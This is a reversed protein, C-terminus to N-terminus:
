RRRDHVMVWMDIQQIDTAFPLEGGVRFGCREYLRRGGANSKLVDLWVLEKGAQALIHGILQTGLGFGTADPLFYIKQLETGWRNSDVPVPRNFNLKAYGALAGNHHMLLYQSQGGKIEAEIVEPDFQADLYDTLGETSWIDSYHSRYTSLGLAILPQIDKLTANVIM